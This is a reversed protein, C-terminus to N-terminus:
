INGWRYKLVIFSGDKKSLGGTVVSGDQNDILSISAYEIPMGSSSDNVTGQIMGIAPMKPKKSHGGHAILNDIIFLIFFNIVLMLRLSNKSM